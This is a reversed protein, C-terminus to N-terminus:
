ARQKETYFREIREKGGAFGSGILLEERIVTESGDQEYEESFFTKQLFEEQRFDPNHTIVSKIKEEQDDTESIEKDFATDCM